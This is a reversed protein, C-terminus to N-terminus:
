RDLYLQKKLLTLIKIVGPPFLDLVERILKRYPLVPNGPYAKFCKFLYLVAGSRDNKQKYLEYLLYYRHSIGSKILEGYKRDLHKFFIRYSKIEGLYNEALGKSYWLGGSHIRYVGMDQTICGIKGHHANLIHLPWDGLPTQYFWDPFELILGNRFMTSCSGIFNGKILDEITYSKKVQPSPYAESEKKGNEFIMTLKHFCITIEPNNDLYDVQKQLKYEDTWYDDGDLLAVYEGSAHKLNNIFNWRGTPKGNIFIVNRRDNLFLRIKDPYKEAYEKVIERTNDSSDDEGILLEYDFDTKQMLVSEIAQSIFKEHNYTLMCVSVKM